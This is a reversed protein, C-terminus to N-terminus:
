KMKIGENKLLNKVYVASEIYEEDSDLHEIIFPMDQSIENALHAYKVIDLNGMGCPVEKLNFTFHEELRIDKVHCSIIADGLQKFCDEIFAENFFYKQPNTIMNVIDLHVAFRDRDIAEILELYSEPSDPYMWPMPELTYFTDEPQATDIIHQVSAVIKDFAAPSYNEKYGGDWIQGCSGAINVTCKAGIRQALKLQKICRDINLAREEENSTIPNVWIGVEAIVLDYDNAAKVYENILSDQSNHEIPFVVAGCGLDRHKKAWEEPSKHELAKAIGLRM